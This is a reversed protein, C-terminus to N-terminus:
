VLSGATSSLVSLLLPCVGILMFAPLICVSLPLMLSVALRAAARQGESRVDRRIRAAEGRLLEGAPIGARRALELVSEIAQEEDDARVVGVSTCADTVLERARDISGGGSMAIAMVDIVFGPAACDPTAKNMLRRNWRAGAFLLALGGCLCVLGPGTAFLTHVTDFGLFVGLVLGIAPLMMVLRATAAPGALAVAIERQTSALERFSGALDRLSSALPAGSATAVHWAGALALWADAVRPELTRSAEVLAQPVSTVTANSAAVIVKATGDTVYEAGVGGGHLYGWVSAQSVGASLLVALRATVAAVAEIPPVDCRKM